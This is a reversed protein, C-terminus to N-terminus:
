SWDEGDDEEESGDSSCLAAAGVEEESDIYTSLVQQLSDCAEAATSANTQPSSSTVNQSCSEGRGGTLISRLVLVWVQVEQM